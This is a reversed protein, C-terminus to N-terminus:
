GNSFPSQAAWANESVTLEMIVPMLPISGVDRLRALLAVLHRGDEPTVAMFRLGLGAGAKAHQVTASPRIQGERVLFDLKITAGVARPEETELFLGKTSLDRVRSVEDRGNCRWYVWVEDRTSARSTLRRAYASKQLSKM